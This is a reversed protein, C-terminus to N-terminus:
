KEKSHVLNGQPDYTEKYSDVKNGNSDVILFYIARSGQVNGPKEKTLVINGSTDEHASFRDYLNSGKDIFSRATKRVADPLLPIM